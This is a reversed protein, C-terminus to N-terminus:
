KAKHKKSAKSGSKNKSQIELVTPANLIDDLGVYKLNDEEHARKMHKLGALNIGVLERLCGINTRVAAQLAQIEPILARSSIIAQFHCRLLFVACRCSLEVDYRAHQCMEILLRLLRTVIHFPLVLLAQELDPQKILRLCRLLYAMPEFGLLRVDPARKALRAHLGSAAKVSYLAIDAIEAEVLDVAEMLLEGSRVSALSKLTATLASDQYTAVHESSSERTDEGAAKEALAELAREREEEVFVLDDSREWLRLSRDQGVSM